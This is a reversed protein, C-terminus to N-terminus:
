EALGVMAAADHRRYVISLVEEADGVYNLNMDEITAYVLCVDVGAKRAIAGLTRFKYNGSVAVLIEGAVRVDIRNREVSFLTAGDSRRTSYPFFDGFGAEFIGLAKSLEAESVGTLRTLAKMTRSTFRENSMALFVTGVINATKKDM